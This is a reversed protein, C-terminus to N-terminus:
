HSRGQHATEPTSAPTDPSGPEAASKSRPSHRATTGTRLQDAQRRRRSAGPKVSASRHEGAWTLRALLRRMAAPDRPCDPDDPPIEDPFNLYAGDGLFDHAARDYARAASEEDPFTGLRLATGDVQIAAKFKGNREIRSVGKYKSTANQRPRSSRRGDEATVVELNERRCDLGNHNKFRIQHGPPVPIIAHHLYQKCYKGEVRITRVAYGEKFFWRFKSLQEHDQDDVLAVRGKSLPLERM